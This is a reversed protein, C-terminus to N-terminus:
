INSVLFLFIHFSNLFNRFFLVWRSISFRYDTNKAALEILRNRLKVANHFGDGELDGKIPIVKIIASYYNVRLTNISTLPTLLCKHTEGEDVDAPHRSGCPSYILDSM